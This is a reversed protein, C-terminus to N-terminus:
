SPADWCYRVLAVLKTSKVDCITPTPSAVETRDQLKKIYKCKKEARWLSLKTLYVSTLNAIFGQCKVKAPFINTMLNNRVYEKQLDEYNELKCPHAWDTNEEFPVMLQITYGRKSNVLWIVLDLHQPTLTIEATFFSVANWIYLLM